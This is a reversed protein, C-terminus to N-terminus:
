KTLTLHPKVVSENMTKNGRMTKFMDKLNQEQMFKPQPM